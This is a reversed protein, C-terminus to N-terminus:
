MTTENEFLDDPVFYAPKLREISVSVPKGKIEIVYVKDSVRQIIKFPGSFPRELPQKM